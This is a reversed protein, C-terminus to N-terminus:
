VVLSSKGSPGIDCTCPFGKAAFGACCVSYATGCTGCSGDTKGDGDKLHCGCPEGHAAFGACCAQYALGCDGPKACTGLPEETVIENAPEAAIVEKKKCPEEETADEPCCYPGTGRITMNKPKGLCMFVGIVPLPTSCCKHDPMGTPAYLDLTVALIGFPDGHTVTSDYDTYHSGDPAYQGSCDPYKDDVLTLNAEFKKYISFKKPDMCADGCFGHALDVSYYKVLPLECKKCCPGVATAAAVLMVVGLLRAM